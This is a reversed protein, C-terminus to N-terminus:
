PVDQIGRRFLQLEAVAGQNDTPAKDNRRAYALVLRRDIIEELTQGPQLISLATPTAPQVERSRASWDRSRAPGSRTTAWWRRSPTRAKRRPLRTRRPPCRLGGAALLASLVLWRLNHKLMVDLPRLNHKLMVDRKGDDGKVARGVVM